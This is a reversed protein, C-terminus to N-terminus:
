AEADYATERFTQITKDPFESMYIANGAVVVNAGAETIAYLNELNIGGDVQIDIKRSGLMKKLERVKDLMAPIFRQCSYGPNVTMILIMDLDDLVYKLGEIPTSPNLAVAAKLNCSRIYNLTRQLHKAAEYHVTIIDAGAKVFMNIFNDPNEVMLHCDFELNSYKRICEVLAPGLTLNPAFLGDMVDIHLMDAGATEVLEVQQRLRSFDAALISPSIKIM